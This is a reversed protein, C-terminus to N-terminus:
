EREEGGTRGGRAYLEAVRDLLERAITRKGLVPLEEAHEHDIITVQNVDSGFGLGPASVNNAVIMDLNKEALKARAYGLVDETEAAFGVLLREGKVAGLEALIDPNPVLRIEGAAADKKLKGSVPTEARFDSVAATAIVIDISPYVASVADRMELTTTVRVTTVGFPDSLVTPGSVLTVKAGRRAAEEAITYGTKGSSRNGLFRVADVPEFTPGATVLVNVGELDRTRTLEARVVEAIEAVPALRGEGVDGCALDGSAPPVIVAGRSRLTEVNAQTAEARWMHTNMAPAIVLTAETALATTTLIDDARGHAIKAIVNATCPAIVFVDAEQALSVHHVPASGPADWLSAAVPENTLTRMTLPGVFRTAAETMVVKVRVDSRVLERVLECSKYAAVCGTVGVLVTPPTM